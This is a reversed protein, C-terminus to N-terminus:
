IHGRMRLAQLSQLLVSLCVLFLGAWFAASVQKVEGFFIMALAISYVPELNFTLNVTFASIKQLAQFQLLCMGITCVISFIILYVVDLTSPVLQSEPLFYLYLPAMLSLFVWGGIMEYFLMVTTSYRTGTMKNFVAFLAALAAAIIGLTIGVRWRSDFHFILVIGAVTLLSLAVERMSIRRRFFLPEILATFFGVMAFCVVAISINAYKVSGYFFVWHSAIIVGIGCLRLAERWPLKFDAKVTTLYIYMFFATFLVRYWVLPGEPIQILKGFPGTFGALLVSLHLKIFATRM